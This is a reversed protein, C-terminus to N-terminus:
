TARLFSQRDFAPLLERAMELEERLKALLDAPIHDALAPRGSRRDPDIGCGQQPRRPGHNWGTM